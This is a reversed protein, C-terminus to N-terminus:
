GFRNMMIALKLKVTGLVSPYRFNRDLLLQCKYIFKEKYFVFKKIYDIDPQSLLGKNYYFNYFTKAYPSFEVCIKKYLSKRIGSNTVSTPHQRHFIGSYDEYIAKGLWVTVMGLWHDHSIGKDLLISKDSCTALMHLNKNWIMVCGVTLAGGEMLTRTRNIGEWNKYEKIDFLPELQRSVVTQNAYYLCPTKSDEKELLRIAHSLKDKKWVDDQDAFAYYSFDMDRAIYMLTLFSDGWGINKGEIVNMKDPFQKQWKKLLPVTKGDTSGDDRVLLYVEVNEQEFISKLQEDLFEEGNYTSMLVAIREM